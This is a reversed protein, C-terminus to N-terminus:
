TLNRKIFEGPDKGLEQLARRIREVLEAEHAYNAVMIFDKTGEAKLAAQHGLQLKEQRLRILYQELLDLDRM